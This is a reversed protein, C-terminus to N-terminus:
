LAKVLCGAQAAAPHDSAIAITARPRDRKHSPQSGPKKARGWGDPTAVTPEEGIVTLRRRILREIDGGMM